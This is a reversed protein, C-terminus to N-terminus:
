KIDWLAKLTPSQLQWRKIDMDSAEVAYPPVYRMLLGRDNGSAVHGMFEAPVLADGSSRWHELWFLPGYQTPQGHLVFYDGPKPEQRTHSEFILPKNAKM